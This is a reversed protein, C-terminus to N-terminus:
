SGENPGTRKEGEDQLGLCVFKAKIAAIHDSHQLCSLNFSNSRLYNHIVFPEGQTDGPSQTKGADPWVGGSATRSASRPILSRGTAVVHLTCSLASPLVYAPGSLRCLCCLRAACFLFAKLYLEM